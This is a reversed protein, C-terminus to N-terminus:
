RCIVTNTFLKWLHEVTEIRVSLREYERTGELPTVGEGTELVEQWEEASYKQGAKTRRTASNLEVRLYEEFAILKDYERM